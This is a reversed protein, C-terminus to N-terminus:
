LDRARIPCIRTLGSVVRAMERQVKRPKEKVGTRAYLMSHRWADNEGALAHAIAATIFADTTDGSAYFGLYDYLNGATAYEGALLHDFALDAIVQQEGHIQDPTRM